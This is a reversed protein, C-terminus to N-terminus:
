RRRRSHELAALRTEMADIRQRKSTLREEVSSMRTRTETAGNELAGIRVGYNSSIGDIRAKVESVTNQHHQLSQTLTALERDMKQVVGLVEDLKDRQERLAARAESEVHEEAKESRKLRSVVLWEMAKYVAVAGGGGGVLLSATELPDAM